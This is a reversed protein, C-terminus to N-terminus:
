EENVVDEFLPATAVLTRCAYAVDDDNIDAHTVLRLRTPSVTGTLVGHRELEVSWARAAPHEVAVINTHVPLVDVGASELAAGIQRARDHDEHLRDVHHRLAVLGAAAVIGAQRMAGGLRKRERRADDLLEGPVALLSGVPACLGKSLCSMVTTVSRAYDAPAIGTAVTANFLRAGDMHIPLETAHRLAVLQENDYPVGGAFMNTNEVVVAGVAAVHDYESEILRRVDAVSLAPADADLTAFQVGANRASAGMEFAVVHAYAGAVVVDGPQTLIRMAIQNAMVGSPVFLAADKGVIEAYLEELERVTPDDGFGDDGVVAEAMARRMENTPQTVTDSRLDIRPIVTPLSDSPGLSVGHCIEGCGLGVANVICKTDLDHTGGGLFHDNPHRHGGFNSLGVSNEVAAHTRQNGFRGGRNTAGNGRSGIPDDHSGLQVTGM